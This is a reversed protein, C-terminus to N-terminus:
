YVLFSPFITGLVECFQIVKSSVFVNIKTYIALKISHHGHALHQALPRVLVTKKKEDECGKLTFMHDGYQSPPFPPVSVNFVKSLTM